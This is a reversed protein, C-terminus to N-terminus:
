RCKTLWDTPRGTGVVVGEQVLVNGASTSTWTRIRGGFDVYLQISLVQGGAHRYTMAIEQRSRVSASTVEYEERRGFENVHYSRGGRVEYSAHVNEYAPGKSCDPAWLGILGSSRLVDAPAQAAAFPSVALEALFLFAAFCKPRM